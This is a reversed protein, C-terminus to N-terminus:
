KYPKGDDPGDVLGTSLILREDTTVALCYPNPNRSSERPGHARDVKWIRQGDALRLRLDLGLCRRIGGRALRTGDGHLDPQPDQFRTRDPGQGSPGPRARRRGRDGTPRRSCGVSRVQVVGDEYGIAILRGDPSFAATSAPREHLEERYLLRDAALDWLRPASRM